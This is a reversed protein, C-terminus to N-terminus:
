LCLNVDAGASLLFQVINDYGNECAVFLPSYGDKNIANVNAGSKILLKVVDLKGNLCAACLATFVKGQNNQNVHKNDM